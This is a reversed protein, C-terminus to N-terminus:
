INSPVLTSKFIGWTIDHRGVVGFVETGSENMVPLTHLDRTLMIEVVKEIPTWPLVYVLGTTYIDSGEPLKEKRGSPTM